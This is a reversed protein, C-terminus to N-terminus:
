KTSPKEDRLAEEELAQRLENRLWQMQYPMRVDIEAQIEASSRERHGSFYRGFGRRHRKIFTKLVRVAMGHKTITEDEGLETAVHLTDVLPEEIEADSWGLGFMDERDSRFEIATMLDGQNLRNLEAIGIATSSDVIDEPEPTLIRIEASLWLPQDPLPKDLLSVRDALAILHNGAIVAHRDMVLSEFCDVRDERKLRADVKEMTVVVQRAISHVEERLEDLETDSNNSANGSRASSHSQDNSEPVNNDEPNDIEGGSPHAPTQDKNSM